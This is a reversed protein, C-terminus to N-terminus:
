NNKLSILAGFRGTKGHEGRHSFWDYLNEATCIGATEIHDERLGAEILTLRNAGWLDFHLRRTGRPLLSTASDGFNLEVAEAVDDGVEYCKKCISPGIGALINEARSHYESQMARVAERAAKAITGKWGAHIMGVTKVVPDYLLIPVCDAFRMFLTVDSRDTLIIDAPQHVDNLPRPSNTAIVHTGHVQWVDFISEVPRQVAKFIRKRNEIVNKREDGVTGGLNLSMWPAPSVGGNRTFFGHLIDKPFLEFSYYKLGVSESVVAV